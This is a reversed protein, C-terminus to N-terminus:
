HTDRIYDEIRRLMTRASNEDVGLQRVLSAPTVPELEPASAILYLAWLWTQFSLPSRALFYGDRVTFRRGCAKCVFRVPSENPRKWSRCERVNESGCGPRPCRAGFPWRYGIISRESIAESAALDHVELM